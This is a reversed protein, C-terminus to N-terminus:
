IVSNIIHDLNQYSKFNDWATAGKIEFSVDKYGGVDSVSEDLKEFSNKNKLAFNQYMAALEAAFLSSEDGGAGAAIELIMAKPKEEEIKDKDLIESMEKWLNEKEISITKIEEEAIEKMDGDSLLSIAEEEKKLLEEYSPYTYKTKDNNKFDDATYAM